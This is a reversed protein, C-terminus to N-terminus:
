LAHSASPRILLASSSRFPRAKRRLRTLLGAGAAGFLWIGGPLPVTVQSLTVGPTSIVLDFDGSALFNSVSWNEFPAYVFADTGFVSEFSWVENTPITILNPFVEFYNTTVYSVAFPSVTANIFSAAWNASANVGGFRDLRADADFWTTTGLSSNTSMSAHVGAYVQGVLNAGGFSAAFLSGDYFAALNIQATTISPDNTSALWHTTQRVESEARVDSTAGAGFGPSFGGAHSYSGITGPLNSRAIAEAGDILAVGEDVAFAAGGPGAAATRTVNGPQAASGLHPGDTLMQYQASASVESGPPTLTLAASSACIQMGFLALLARFAATRDM